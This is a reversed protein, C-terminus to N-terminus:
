AMTVRIWEAANKAAQKANYLVSNVGNCSNCCAALMGLERASSRTISTCFIGMSRSLSTLGREMCEM